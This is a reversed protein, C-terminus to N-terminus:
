KLMTEAQQTREETGTHTHLLWLRTKCAVALLPVAPNPNWAVFDVIGGMYWLKFMRGSDVEWV